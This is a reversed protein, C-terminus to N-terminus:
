RRPLRPPVLNPLQKDAMDRKILGECFLLIALTLVGSILATLLAAACFIFFPSSTM